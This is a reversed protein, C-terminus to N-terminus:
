DHVIRRSLPLGEGRIPDALPRFGPSLTLIGSFVSLQVQDGLGSHSLGAAPTFRSMPKVMILVPTDTM